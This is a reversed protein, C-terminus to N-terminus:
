WFSLAFIPLHMVLRNHDVKGGVYGRVSCTLSVFWGTQLFVGFLGTWQFVWVYDM